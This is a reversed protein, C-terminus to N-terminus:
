ILISHIKQQFNPNTAFIHFFLTLIEWNNTIQLISLM